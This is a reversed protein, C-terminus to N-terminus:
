KKRWRLAQGSRLRLTAYGAFGALGTGLLALTSVEPVFEEEACMEGHWYSFYIDWNDNGNREDQWVAYANGSPDVAISPAGQDATGADDNVRVNPGWSGGAPRYSSYIDDNGNRRDAWVAYTNGCPDLAIAPHGQIETGADDNLKSNASWSNGVPRYSFYIDENGNREDGWVLYADGSLDVAIAPAIQWATGVDDNVKVSPGWADGAPRYSFYIDEDCSAADCHGDPDNRLDGWAAYANGSSDVAISPWDQDAAGPDDNVKVDTGWTGGAPRYSFYIDHNGNRSDRWVAHANGSPDVAISAGLCGLGVDDNVQVNVGWSGGAPRYSFYIDIAANREDTWVAYANGRPDVAISPLRQTATGLADGVKVDASWSGGTHRYSFYVYWAIDERVDAWVVYANGRPDVAISPVEQDATGVDDNVRVNVGWPADARPHPPPVARTPPDASAAMPLALLAVLSGTMMLVAWVRAKSRGILYM